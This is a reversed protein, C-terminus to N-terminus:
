KKIREFVYFLILSILILITAAAIAAEMNGGQWNLFIAISLTETKGKIAGSVLLIAGFAGISRALAVIFASAIGKASLPLDVKLFSQFDSYGLTKLVMHYRKDISSFASYLIKVVEPTIYLLLAIIIAYPTFLLELGLNELFKVMPNRALFLLLAFSLLIPPLALPLDTLLEIAKKGKFSYNALSYAVPISLILSLTSATISTALTLIVAFRIEESFFISLLTKVNNQLIFYAIIIALVTFYLLSVGIFAKRM